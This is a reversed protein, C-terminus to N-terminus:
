DRRIGVVEVPTLPHFLYQRNDTMNQCLYRTRRKAGKKFQIGTKTQFITNERLDELHTGVTQNDYKKLVRSLKLDSTSSAKSNVISQLLVEHIDDPFISNKLVVKMLKRFETKWEIGHPAVTNQHLKWVNLHALEHVFTILFAFPNLNHNISIRHNPHNVPPRYDGFKSNRRRSIKLHVNNQVIWKMVQNISKEPLYEKLIEKEKM